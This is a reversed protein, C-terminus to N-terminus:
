KDQTKINPIPVSPDDGISGFIKPLVNHLLAFVKGQSSTLGLRKAKSKEYFDVNATKYKLTSIFAFISVADVVREFYGDAFFTRCWTETNLLSLFANDALIYGEGRMRSEVLRMKGAWTDVRVLLDSIGGGELTYSPLNMATLGELSDVRDRLAQIDALLGDDLCTEGSSGTDILKTELAAEVNLGDGVLEGRRLFIAYFRLGKQPSKCVISSLPPVRSRAIWM